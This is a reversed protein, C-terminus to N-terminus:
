RAVPWKEGAKKKEMFVRLARNLRAEERKLAKLRALADGIATDWERVPLQQTEQTNLCLTQKTDISM